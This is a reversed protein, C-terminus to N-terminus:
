TRVYDFPTREDSLQTAHGDIGLLAAGGPVRLRRGSWRRRAAALRRDGDGPDGVGRELTAPTRLVPGAESYACTTLLASMSSSIM